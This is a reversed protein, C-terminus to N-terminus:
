SARRTALDFLTTVEDAYITDIAAQVIQARRAAATFSRHTERPGIVPM